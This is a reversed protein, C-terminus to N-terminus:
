SEILGCCNLVEIGGEKRGNWQGKWIFSQFSRNKRQIEQTSDWRQCNWWWAWEFYKLLERHVGSHFNRNKKKLQQKLHEISGDRWLTLTVAVMKRPNSHVFKTLWPPLVHWILPNKKKSLWLNIQIFSLLLSYKLNM